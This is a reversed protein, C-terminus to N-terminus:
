AFPSMGADLMAADSTAEASISDVSPVVGADMAPAAGGDMRVAAGEDPQAVPPTTAVIDRTGVIRGTGDPEISLTIQM